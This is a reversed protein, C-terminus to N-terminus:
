ISSQFICMLKTQHSETRSFKGQCLCQHNPDLNAETVTPDHPRLELSLLPPLFKSYTAQLTQILHLPLAAFCGQMGAVGRVEVEM